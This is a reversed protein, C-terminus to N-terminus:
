SDINLFAHHLSRALKEDRAAVFSMRKHMDFSQCFRRGNSDLVYGGAEFVMHTGSVHVIPLINRLDIMADLAGSATWCLDLLNSGTRRMDHISQLTQLSQRGFDGVLSKKTDYSIIIRPDERDLIPKISKSNKTAGEGSVAIYLEDTFFSDIISIEVDDTTMHESFPAASIGVSVLPIGRELNASGDIPDLIVLYEPSSDSEIMGKEETLISYITDAQQLFDVVNDEASQDLLLTKDGFPNEEGTRITSSDLNELVTQKAIEVAKKMDQMVTM